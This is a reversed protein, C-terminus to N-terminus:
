VIAKRRSHRFVWKSLRRRVLDLQSQLLRQRHNQDKVVEDWVLRHDVVKVGQPLDLVDVEEEKLAWEWARDALGAKDLALDKSRDEQVGLDATVVHHDTM